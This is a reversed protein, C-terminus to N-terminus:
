HINLDSAEVALVGTRERELVVDETKLGAGVCPGGKLCSRVFDGASFYVRASDLGIAHLDNIGTALTHPQCIGAICEGGGCSHDCANCHDGDKTLDACDQGCATEGM